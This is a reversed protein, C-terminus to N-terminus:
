FPENRRGYQLWQTISADKAKIQKCVAKFNRKTKWIGYQDWTGYQYLMQTASCTAQGLETWKRKQGWHKSWNKPLAAQCHSLSLIKM